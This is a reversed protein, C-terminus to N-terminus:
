EAESLETAHAATAAVERAIGKDLIALVGLESRGFLRGLNAKTGFLVTGNPIEEHSARALIEDRRGAADRAVVLLEVQGLALARRVADTGLQIRKNRSAALLLGDVRRAYQEAAMACLENADFDVKSKLARAFGGRTAAREVCARRPHVSVGRGGLRSRPDPVLQPGEGPSLEPVFAFRLLASKGDVERCGACTREPEASDPLIKTAALVDRGEPGEQEPTTRIKHSRDPAPALM